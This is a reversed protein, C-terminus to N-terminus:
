RVAPAGPRVDFGPRVHSSRGARRRRAALGALLLGPVTSETGAGCGCTTGAPADSDTEDGVPLAEAAWRWAARSELTPGVGFWAETAPGELDLAITGEADADATAFVLTGEALAAGGAVWGSAAEVTIRVGADGPLLLHVFAGGLREPEGIGEAEAPLSDIEAEYLGGTRELTALFVDRDDVDLAGMHALFEAWHGAVDRGDFEDLVRDLAEEASEKRSATTWADRVLEAGGVREELFLPFVFHSYQPGTAYEYGDLAAGPDAFWAPLFENAYSDTDPHVLDEMWVATAEYFWPSEADFNAGTAYQSLHNFEHAPVDYLYDLSRYWFDTNLVLYGLDQGDCTATSAVGGVNESAPLNLIVAQVYHTDSGAPAPWGLTDVQVTWSNELAEAVAALWAESSASDAPDYDIEFHETRLVGSYDGEAEWRAAVTAPDICTTRHSAPPPAGFLLPPALHAIVSGCLWPAAM